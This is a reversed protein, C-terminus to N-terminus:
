KNKLYYIILFKTGFIYSMNLLFCNVPAKDYGNRIRRRKVNKLIFGFQNQAKSVLGLRSQVKRMPTSFQQDTTRSRLASLKALAFVIRLLCVSRWTLQSTIKDIDVGFASGLHMSYELCRYPVDLQAGESEKSVIFSNVAIKVKQPKLCTDSKFNPVLQTESPM